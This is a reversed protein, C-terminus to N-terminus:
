WNDSKLEKMGDLARQINAKEQETKAQDSQKKISEVVANEADKNGWMVLTYVKYYYEMGGGPVVRSWREVHFEKARAAITAESVMKTADDRVIGPNLVASATGVSSIVEDIVHKGYTGMADIIQKRADELANARAEAESGFNHSTGCFAKADKSDFSVPSLSWKPEDGGALKEEYGIPKRTGACAALLLCLAFAISKKM